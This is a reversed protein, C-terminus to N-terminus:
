STLLPNHQCSNLRDGGGEGCDSREEVCGAGAGAAGGGGAGGKSAIRGIPPASSTSQDEIHVFTCPIRKDMTPAVKWGEKDGGRTERSTPRKTRKQEEEEQELRRRRLRIEEECGLCEEEKMLEVTVEKKRKRAEGTRKRRELDEEDAAM